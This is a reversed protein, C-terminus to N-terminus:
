APQKIVEVVKLNYILPSFPLILPRAGGHGYGYESVMFVKAQTGERSIRVVSDIGPLLNQKGYVFGYDRKEERTNRFVTGDLLHGKLKMVVSDGEKIRPGNGKEVFNVYLGEEITDVRGDVADIYELLATKENFFERIKLTTYVTDYRGIQPPVRGRYVYQAESKAIVSDGETLRPLLEAVDGKFQPPEVEFFYNKDDVFTNMLHRDKTRVLIDTRVVDGKEPTPGNLDTYKKYLLGRETTDYDLGSHRQMTDAKGQDSEESGDNGCGMLLLSGAFFCLHFFWKM